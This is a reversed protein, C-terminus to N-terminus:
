KSEKIKNEIYSIAQKTNKITRLDIEIYTGRKRAYNRKLNDLFKRQLFHKKSSKWSYPRYHQGGNVEIFINHEPFYIDYRLWRNTLKNKFAKYEPIGKYHKISYEKLEFAILSEGCLCGCSKTHGNKLNNGAIIKNKGCKCKCLWFTRGNANTHSFSLVKLIGFNKGIINILKDKSLKSKRYCGCSKTFGKRLSQGIVVVNKRCKLCRCLWQIKHQGSPQVRDEARKIVKLSGFVKGKLNILRARSTKEKHVCGCSTTIGKRLSYMEISVTTKNKCNCRCKWYTKKNRTIDRELVTLRGFRKGTLDKFQGM